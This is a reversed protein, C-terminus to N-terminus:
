HFSFGDVPRTHLLFDPHADHYGIAMGVAIGAAFVAAIVLLVLYPFVRDLDDSTM